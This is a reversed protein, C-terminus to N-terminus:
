PHHLKDKPKWHRSDITKGENNMIYLHEGDLYIELNTKEMKEEILTVIVKENVAGDKECISHWHIEDCENLSEFGNKAIFRVFM